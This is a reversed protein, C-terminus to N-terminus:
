RKVFHIGQRREGSSLVLYYCGTPMNNMDLRFDAGSIIGRKTLTGLGNYLIYETPNYTEGRRTLNAQDTVPNPYLVWEEQPLSYQYTEVPTCPLHNVLEWIEDNLLFPVPSTSPSEGMRLWVLNQSPVVNLIQGDKGLASIMDAPANPFLSGPFVFQSQPLMFSNQGNLWWLYGYAENLNQSPSTMQNFYATDSLVPIGDWSGRNLILLGFRAMSRATSIFLNNYGQPFFLGDMGTLTKVKLNTYQNLSLGTASEVVSDLLTYPANHYAWRSGADALCNLCTDLTCYPDSVADDLGSTM